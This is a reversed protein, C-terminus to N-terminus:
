EEPQVESSKSVIIKKMPESDEKKESIPTTTTELSSSSKEITEPKESNDSPTKTESTSQEHTEKEKPIEIKLISIDDKEEQTPTMSPEGFPPAFPPTGGGTPPMPPSTPMYTPTTPKYPGGFPPTFTPTGGGAPPMPPSTPMYTPTTPTMSPEGFPPTFTPTGGGASPMPPSTPMYTPTTPKYPGGFPPTFTPTGGGAPPMPPSTPMYASGYGFQPSDVPSKPTFVQQEEVGSKVIDPIGDETVQKYSEIVQDYNKFGTNLEIQKSSHTMTTMQDVNDETIIRMAVNMSALEQM